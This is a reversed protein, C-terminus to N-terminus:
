LANKRGNLIVLSPLVDDQAGAFFGSDHHSFRYSTMPTISEESQVVIRNGM